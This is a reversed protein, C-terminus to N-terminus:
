FLSCFNSYHFQFYKLLILLKKCTKHIEYCLIDAVATEIAQDSFPNEQLFIVCTSLNWFKNIILQIFNIYLFSKFNIFKM